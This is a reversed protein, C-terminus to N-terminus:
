FIAYYAIKNESKYDYLWAPKLKFIYTVKGLVPDTDEALLTLNEHVKAAQAQEIADYVLISSKDVFAPKNIPIPLYCCGGGASFVVTKKAEDWAYIASAPYDIKTMASVTEVSDAFQPSNTAYGSYFSVYEQRFLFILTKRFPIWQKYGFTSDTALDVTGTSSKRHVSEVRWYHGELMKLLKEQTWTDAPPPTAPVVEKNCAAILWCLLLISLATSLSRTYM